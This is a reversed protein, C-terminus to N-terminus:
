PMKFSFRRRSTLVRGVKTAMFVQSLPSILQDFSLTPKINPAGRPLKAGQRTYHGHTKQLHLYLKNLKDRSGM